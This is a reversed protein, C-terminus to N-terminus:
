AGVDNRASVLDIARIVKTQTFRQKLGIVKQWHGSGVRIKMWLTALDPGTLRMYIKM